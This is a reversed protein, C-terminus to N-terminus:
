RPDQSHHVLNSTAVVSARWSNPFRVTTKGPAPNREVVGIDQTVLHRVRDGRKFGPDVTLPSPGGRYKGLTALDLPVPALVRSTEDWASVPFSSSGDV